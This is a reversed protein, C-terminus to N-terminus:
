QRGKNFPYPDYFAKWLTGRKLADRYGFQELGAPQFGVYLHPPTSYVKEGVAPCPDFPSHYPQYTKFPTAYENM